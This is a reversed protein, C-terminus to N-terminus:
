QCTIGKLSGTVIRAHICDGDFAGDSSALQFPAGGRWPLRPPVQWWVTCFVGLRITVM